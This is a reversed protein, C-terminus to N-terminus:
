GNRHQFRVGEICNKRMPRTAGFPSVGVGTYGPALIPVPTNGFTSATVIGSIVGSVTGSWDSNNSDIVAQIEFDYSTGLTLGTLNYSTSSGVNLETFSGAGSVRYYLNYNALSVTSGLSPATWSLNIQTTSAASAALGSPAAPETAYAVASSYTGTGNVNVGAVQYAYETGASCTSDVYTTGTVGTALTSFTGGLTSARQITYSTPSGSPATWALDLATTPNTSDSSVTLGTVQGPPSGATYTVTIEGSNIYATASKSTQTGDVAIMVGWDSNTLNSYTPGTTFDYSATSFNGSSPSTGSIQPWSTSTNALNSGQGGTTFDTSNYIWPQIVWDYLDYSGTTGGGQVRSLTFSTDTISDGSTLSLNAAFDYLLTWFPCETASKSDVTSQAYDGSTGNFQNVGVSGGSQSTWGQYEYGSNPSGGGKSDYGSTPNQLLGGNALVSAAYATEITM